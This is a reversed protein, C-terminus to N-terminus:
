LLMFDGTLPNLAVFALEQAAGDSVLAELAEQAPAIGVIGESADLAAWCRIWGPNPADITQFTQEAVNWGAFSAVTSIGAGVVGTSVLGIVHGDENFVPGGSMGGPWEAEVVLLPWPRGSSSEPPRVEVITALSGYLYQTMARADGEGRHDVDLDAFGLAMVRDGITPQWRRVDMPLFPADRRAGASRQIEVYAIETVNRIRPAALPPNEISCLSFMGSFPRWSDRPLAVTGYAVHEFELAVLRLDDRLVARGEDITLLDEIVHFATACGGWPDVRFATGHGAPRGGQDRPDFAFLPLIMARLRPDQAVFLGREDSYEPVAPFSM